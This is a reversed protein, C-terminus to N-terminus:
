RLPSLRYREPNALSEGLNNGYPHRTNSPNGERMNGPSPPVPDSLKSAKGSWPADGFDHDYHGNM